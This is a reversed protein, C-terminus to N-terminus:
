KRGKQVLIDIISIRNMTNHSYIVQKKLEVPKFLSPFQPGSHITDVVKGLWVQNLLYLAKSLQQSM